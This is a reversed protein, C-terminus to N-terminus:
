ALYAGGLKDRWRENLLHEAFAAVDQAMHHGNGYVEEEHEMDEFIKICAAYVAGGLEIEKDRQENRIMMPVVLTYTRNSPISGERWTRISM